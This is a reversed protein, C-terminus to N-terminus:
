IKFLEGNKFSYIYTAEVEMGLIEQVAKSYIGVQKKYEKNDLTKSGTKYDVIAAINNKVLLLDIIGQILIEGGVNEIDVSCASARLIFSKEKFVKCGKALEKIVKCAREIELKEVLGINEMASLKQWESAFDNNFDIRQMVAHYVNGRILAREDDHGSIYREAEEESNKAVKTVNTKELNDKFSYKFEVRKKILNVLEGDEKGFIIKRSPIAIENILCDEMSYKNVKWKVSTMVNILWDLFCNGDEPSSVGITEPMENTSAFLSVGVKARTLAVYLIRMEEELRSSTQKLKIANLVVTSSKVRKEWDWYKMGLGFEASPIIDRRTDKENFKKSLNPLIVFPFELGKSSHITMIRVANINQKVDLEASGRELYDLYSSIDTNFLCASVMSLFSDVNRARNFGDDLSYLYRFYEADTVILGLLEDVKVDFSAQTYRELKLLFDTVKAALDDGAQIYKLVCDYYWLENPYAQRIVSLEYDTFTGFYSRMVATLAIDNQHNDILQLYSYLVSIENIALLQLNKNVWVEIGVSRLKDALIATYKDNARVLVVIDNYDVPREVGNEAISKGLLEVIHSTVLNTEASVLNDEANHEHEMVSYIESTEAKYRSTKDVILNLNVAEGSGKEGLVFRANKKYDVKGFGETMITCFVDNCFELIKDDSRFNSNLEIVKGSGQQRYRNYKDVFIQPNCNRFAYISQKVDGVLFMNKGNDLCSLIGEQLPNIDQYEDVFVFKYKPSIQEAATKDTIIQYAYHELDNYDVLGKNKKADDYLNKASLTMEALIKGYPIISLPNETNVLDRKMDIYKKAAAKAENFELNIDVFEEAIKGYPRSLVIDLGKVFEMLEDVLGDLRKYNAQKVKYYVSECKSFMKKYYNELFEAILKECSETDYYCNLCNRLWNESDKQSVAFHYIEKIYTKLLTDKRRRLLIDYLMIFDSQNQRIMSEVVNDISEALLSVAEGEDIIEFNPDISIIYFYQKILRQCWSHLTSINAAPLGLMQNKIHIDGTEDYSLSLQKALKVRMDAAASKTFTSVLMDELGFGEQILAMIRAIMVTTKGSGASASVLLNCDREDIVQRQQSTWNYEAM